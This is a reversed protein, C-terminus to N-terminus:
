TIKRLIILFVIPANKLLVSDNIFIRWVYIDYRINALFSWFVINKPYLIGLSSIKKKSTTNYIYSPLVCLVVEFVITAMSNCQIVFGLWNQLYISLNSKFKGWKQILKNYLYKLRKFQNMLCKKSMHTKMLLIFTM